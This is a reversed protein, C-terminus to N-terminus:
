KPYIFYEGMREAGKWLKNRFAPKRDAINIIRLEERIKVGRKSKVATRM